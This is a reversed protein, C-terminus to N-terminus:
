QYSLFRTAFVNIVRMRERTGLCGPPSYGVQNILCVLFSVNRHGLGVARRQLDSQVIVVRQSITIVARGHVENCVVNNTIRWETTQIPGCRKMLRFRLKCWDEGSRRQNCAKTVVGSRQQQVVCMRKGNGANERGFVKRDIVSLDRRNLSEEVSAYKRTRLAFRLAALRAQSDTTIPLRPM